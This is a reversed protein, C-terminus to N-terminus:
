RKSNGKYLECCLYWALAAVIMNLVISICQCALAIHYATEPSM